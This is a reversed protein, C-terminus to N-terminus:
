RKYINFHVGEWEEATSIRSGSEPNERGKRGKQCAYYCAIQLPLSEYRDIRDIFQVITVM